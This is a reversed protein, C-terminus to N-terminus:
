IVSLWKLFLFVLSVSVSDFLIVYFLKFIQGIM